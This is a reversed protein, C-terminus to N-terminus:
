RRQEARWPGPGRQQQSLQTTARPSTGCLRGFTWHACGLIGHYIFWVLNKSIKHLPGGSAELVGCPSIIFCQPRSIAISGYHGNCPCALTTYGGRYREFAWTSSLSVSRELGRRSAAPAAETRGEVHEQQGASPGAHGTPM